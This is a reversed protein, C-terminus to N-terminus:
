LGSGHQLKILYVDDDDHNHYLSKYRKNNYTVERLQDANKHIILNQSMRKTIMKLSVDDNDPPTSTCSSYLIFVLEDIDVEVAISFLRLFVTIKSYV